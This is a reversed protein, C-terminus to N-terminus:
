KGWGCLFWRQTRTKMVVLCLALQNWLVGGVLPDLWRGQVPIFVQLRVCGSHVSYQPRTGNGATPSSTSTKLPNGEARYTAQHPWGIAEPVRPCKGESSCCHKSRQSDEGRQLRAHPWTKWAGTQMNEHKEDEGAGQTLVARCNHFYLSASLPMDQAM